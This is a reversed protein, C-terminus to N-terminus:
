ARGHEVIVDLEGIRGFHRAEQLAQRPFHPSNVKLATIIDNVTLNDSELFQIDIRQSRVCKKM